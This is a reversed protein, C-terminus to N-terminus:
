YKHAQSSAGHHNKKSILNVIESTSEFGEFWNVEAFGRLWTLQRKALQRTAIIAKEVAEDYSIEGALHQLLQRYGVCRMSPMDPTLDGRQYLTKVEALFGQDMMSHFRQAIRQHLIARDNPSLAITLVPYDLTEGQQRCLESLSVGAVRYVELARQIRQPDNPHIRAAAEPDVHALQQHMAEWGIQNAEDLLQQRTTEDAQPLESLGYKLAHFYLMTGGVLLPINGRGMIDAILRKADLCFEAASYRQTPERIDILHHPVKVREALAPKATGIDMDRYVLASDVNIIEVSFRKALEFAVATKGSATPGMLFIIRKNM